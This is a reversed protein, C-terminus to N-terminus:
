YFLLVNTFRIGCVNESCSVKSFLCLIFVFLLNNNVITVASIQATDLKGVMINDLMSVFNTILNQAIIPLAMTMTRRYFAKDGIFKRFM